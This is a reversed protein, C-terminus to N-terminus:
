VFVDLIHQSDADHHEVYERLQEDNLMKMGDAIAAARLALMETAFKGDFPVSLIQSLLETNSMPTKDLNHSTATQKSGHSKM